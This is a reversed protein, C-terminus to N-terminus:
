GYIMADQFLQELADADAQRPSLKTIRHQLLTGACQLELDDPHAAVCLVTLKEPM